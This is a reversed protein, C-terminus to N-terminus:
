SQRPEIGLAEWARALADENRVVERLLQEFSLSGWRVARAILAALPSHPESRAFYAGIEALRRLAQERSEILAAPAPGAPAPAAAPLCEAAAPDLAADAAAAALVPRECGPPPLVARIQELREVLPGLQPAEESGAFRSAVARALAQLAVECQALQADLEALAQPGAERLRSHWEESGFLGGELLERHRSQDARGAQRDVLEALERGAWTLPGRESRLLPCAHVARLFGKGSALWGLWRARLALDVGGPEAGPHLSDWYAACLEVVLRLGDRLGQPGRTRAWAEALWVAVQLDKGRQVLFVECERAVACWDASAAEGQPAGDFEPERRLEALRELALDGSLVRVDAGAPRDPRIPLLLEALETM